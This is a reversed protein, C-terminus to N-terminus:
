KREENKRIKESVIKDEEKEKNLKSKINQIIDYDRKNYAYKCSYKGTHDFVIPNEDKTYKMPSNAVM